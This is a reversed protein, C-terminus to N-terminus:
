RMQQPVLCSPSQPISLFNMLFSGSGVRSFQIHHTSVAPVTTVTIMPPIKRVPRASRALPMQGTAEGVGVGADTGVTISFGACPRGPAGTVTEPLPQGTPSTTVNRSAAGAAYPVAATSKMVAVTPKSPVNVAESLMGTTRGHDSNGATLTCTTPLADETVTVDSKPRMEAGVSCGTIAVADAIGAGDAVGASDAVGV